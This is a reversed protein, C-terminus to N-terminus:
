IRDFLPTDGEVKPRSIVIDKYLLYKSWSEDTTHITHCNHELATSIHIADPTRIKTGNRLNTKRLEGAKRAINADAAICYVRSAFFNNFVKIEDSDTGDEEKFYLVETITIASTCITLKGGYCQQIFWEIIGLEETTIDNKTNDSSLWAIFISSDWYIFKNTGSM